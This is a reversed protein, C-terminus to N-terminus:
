KGATTVANRSPGIRTLVPSQKSWNAIWLEVQAVGPQMLRTMLSSSFYQGEASPKMGALESVVGVFKGNIAILAECKSCMQKRVYFVGSARAPVPALRGAAITQYNRALNLRWTLSTNTGAKEPTNTGLLSGSRGSRYIGDVDSDADIWTDYYKVRKV